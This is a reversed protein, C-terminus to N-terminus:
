RKLSGDRLEMSEKKKKIEIERIEARINISCEM